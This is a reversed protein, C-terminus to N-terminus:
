EYVFNANILEKEICLPRRYATILLYSHHISLFTFPGPFKHVLSPSPSSLPIFLALPLLPGNNLVPRRIDDTQRYGPSLRPRSCCSCSL